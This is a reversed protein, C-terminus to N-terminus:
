GESKAVVVLSKRLKDVLSVGPLAGWCGAMAFRGRRGRSISKGEDPEAAVSAGLMPLALRRVPSGSLPSLILGCVIACLSVQGSGRISPANLGTFLMTFGTHEFSGM